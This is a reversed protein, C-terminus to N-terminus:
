FEKRYWPSAVVVFKMMLTMFKTKFCCIYPLTDKMEINRRALIEKKLNGFSHKMMM